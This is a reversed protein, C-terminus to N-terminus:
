SVDVVASMDFQALILCGRGQMAITGYYLVKPQAQRARSVWDYHMDDHMKAWWKLFDYCEQDRGLRLFLAPVLDRVGMNDGRCLRLMHMLHSHAQDVADFTQVELLAEVLGFRARM